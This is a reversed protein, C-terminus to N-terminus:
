YGKFHSIVGEKSCHTQKAAFLMFSFDSLLEFNHIHLKFDLM